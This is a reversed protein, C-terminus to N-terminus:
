ISYFNDIVLEAIESVADEYTDDEKYSDFLQSNTTHCSSSQWEGNNDIWECKMTYQGYGSARQISAYRITNNNYTKM